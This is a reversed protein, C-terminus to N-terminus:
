EETSSETSPASPDTGSDPEPSSAEMPQATPPPWIVQGAKVMKGAAASGYYVRSSPLVATM